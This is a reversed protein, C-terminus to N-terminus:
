GNQQSTCLLLKSKSFEVEPCSDLSMTLKVFNLIVKEIKAKLAYFQRTNDRELLLRMAARCIAIEVHIPCHHKM